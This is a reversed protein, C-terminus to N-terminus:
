SPFRPSNKEQWALRTCPRDISHSRPSNAVWDRHCWFTRISTTVGTFGLATAPRARLASAASRFASSAAAAASASSSRLHCCPARPLVAASERLSFAASFARLFASSSRRFCSSSALVGPLAEDPLPPPLDPPPPLPTLRSASSSISICIAARFAVFRSSANSAMSSTFALDSLALRAGSGAVNLPVRLTPELRGKLRVLLALQGLESLLARTQAQLLVILGHVLAELLRALVGEVLQVYAVVSGLLFLEGDELGLALSRRQTEPGLLIGIRQCSYM